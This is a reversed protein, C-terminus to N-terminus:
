LRKLIIKVYDGFRIHGTYDLLLYIITIITLILSFFLFGKKSM